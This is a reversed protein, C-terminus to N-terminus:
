VSTSAAGCCCQFDTDISHAIVRARLNRESGLMGPMGGSVNLGEPLVFKICKM